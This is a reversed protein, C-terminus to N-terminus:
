KKQAVNKKNFFKMISTQNRDKASKDLKSLKTLKGPPPNISRVNTMGNENDDHERKKRKKDNRSPGKNLESPSPITTANPSQPQYKKMEKADINNIKCSEKLVKSCNKKDQYSNVLIKHDIIAKSTDEFTDKILENPTDQIIKTTIKSPTNQAIKDFNSINKTEFCLSQFHASSQSHFLWLEITQGPNYATFPFQSSSTENVINITVNLYECTELTVVGDEDTYTGSTIQAQIFTNVADDNELFSIEKWHAFNQYSRLRSIVEYRLIKADTTFPLNQIKIQDSLAEWWCDGWGPTPTSMQIPIEIKQASKNIANEM